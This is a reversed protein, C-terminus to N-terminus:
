GIIIAMAILGCLEATVLSFGALDGSVGKLNNYAYAMAATFGAIVSVATILGPFGAFIYSLIIGTIATIIVFARHAKGTNQKLMIAYGSQSLTKLCFISITSCSRSIIPITIFLEPYKEKEAIAYLCAFQIVLLVGFMIVGFAGIHPDKLIRLKDELPKRSLVADSTDMYGDLHLFGTILFPFLTLVATIIMIHISSAYLLMAASFWLIGTVAGIVPFYALVLNMCTNDWINFPLPISCFMGFSMYLGKFYRKM